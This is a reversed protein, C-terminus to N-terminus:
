AEQRLLSHNSEPCRHSVNELDGEKECETEVKTKQGLHRRLTDQNDLRRVRVEGLSGGLGQQVLPHIEYDWAIGPYSTLALGCFVVFVSTCEMSVELFVLECWNM